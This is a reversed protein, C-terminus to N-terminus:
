PFSFFLLLIVLCFFPTSTVQDRNFENFHTQPRLIRPEENPLIATAVINQNKQSNNSASVLVTVLNPQVPPAKRPIGFFNNPNNSNQTSALEHFQKVETAHVGVKELVAVDKESKMNEHRDYFDELADVLLDKLSKNEQITQKTHENVITKEQTLPDVYTANRKPVPASTVAPNSSFPNYNYVVNLQPPLQPQPRSEEPATKSGSKREPRPSNSAARTNFAVKKAAPSVVPSDNMDEQYHTKRYQEDLEAPDNELVLHQYYKGTSGALIKRMQRPSVETSNRTLLAALKPVTFSIKVNKGEDNEVIVPDQFNDYTDNSKLFSERTDTMLVSNLNLSDLRSIAATPSQGINIDKVVVTPYEVGNSHQIRKSSTIRM